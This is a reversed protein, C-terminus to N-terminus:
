FEKQSHTTKVLGYGLHGIINSLESKCQCEPKRKKLTKKNM